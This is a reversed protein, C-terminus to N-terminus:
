VETELHYTIVKTGDEYVTEVKKVGVGRCYAWYVSQPMQLIDQQTAVRLPLTTKRVVKPQLALQLQTVSM